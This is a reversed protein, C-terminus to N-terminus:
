FNAQLYDRDVVEAKFVRRTTLDRVRIIQGFVGAQLPMVALYIRLRSDQAMVTAPTGPEVLVPPSFMEARVMEGARILRQVQKGAIEPLTVPPRRFVRTLARTEVRFDSEGAIEGPSLERVAIVVKVRSRLRGTIFFPLSKREKSAWLRFRVQRWVPDFEVQTVQLGPDDKTVMVPAALRLDQDALSVASSFGNRELASRIVRVIEERTLWRHARVVSIKKPIELARLLDLEDRLRHELQARRIVRLSGPQPSYGLVIGAARSRLVAPAAEPLLDSLHIVDSGVEVKERLKVKRAPLQEAALEFMSGFLGLAIVAVATPKCRM